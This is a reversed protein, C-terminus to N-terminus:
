RTGGANPLKANHDAVIDQAIQEGLFSGVAPVGISPPGDYPMICWGGVTDDRRAYWTATRLAAVLDDGRLKIWEAVGIPAVPLPGPFKRYWGNLLVWLPEDSDGITTYALALDADEQDAARHVDHTPEFYLHNVSIRYTVRGLPGTLRWATQGTEDPFIERTLGNHQRM